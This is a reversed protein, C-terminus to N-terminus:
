PQFFFIRIDYIPIRTKDITIYFLNIPTDAWNQWPYEGKQTSAKLLEWATLTGYEFPLTFAYFIKPRPKKHRYWQKFDKPNWFVKGTNESKSSCV